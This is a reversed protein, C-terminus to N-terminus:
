AAPRTTVLAINAVIFWLMTSLLFVREALGFWRRALPSVGAVVGALAVMAVIRLGQLAPYAAHEALPPTANAIATYTAAFSVIALVLHIRGRRTSAQGKADTPIAIVGIRAAVMLLLSALVIDPLAPGRSFFIQCALLAAAATGVNGYTRFLRGRPGVAYHSVPDRVWDVSRDVAHLRFFM